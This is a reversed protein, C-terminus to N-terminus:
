PTESIGISSSVKEGKEQENNIARIPYPIIIGEQAYRKHLRKIFEHKLLYNDVFEHARLIVSFNISFDDFTHYRIFPDFEAVAGTVDQLAQKGVEKTVREVHELDSDYHVGVQVLVALEKEPYYFNTIRSNVLANNSMVVVNNPLMRLWTSRWGIKHVYGQEGSELQIFQGVQFPKDIIIQIGAFLNELTPQLALAIALSGIGLSAIIPTISVGFTDLLILLGLGVVIVRVFGRAVGGTTKLIAVEEKYRKMTGNLFKDVFMIIAIITAAKFGIVFYKALQADRMSPLVWEVIFGGSAFALLTLPFDAAQVFVDDLRTKTKGAAKKVAKFCIRKIALLVTVWAFYALPVILWSSFSFGLFNINQM